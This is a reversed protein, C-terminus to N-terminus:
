TLHMKRFFTRSKNKKIHCLLCILVVGAGAHSKARRANKNEATPFIHRSTGAKAPIVNTEHKM